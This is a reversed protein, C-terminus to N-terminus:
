VRAPVKAAKGDDERDKRSPKFEARRAQYEREHDSVRVEIRAPASLSPTQSVNSRPAM